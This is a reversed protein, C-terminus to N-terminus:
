LFVVTAACSRCGLDTDKLCAHTLWPCWHKTFQSYSKSPLPRQKAVPCSGALLRQWVHSRLSAPALHPTELRQGRLVAELEAKHGNEATHGCRREQWGPRGGGAMSPLWGSRATSRPQDLCARSDAAPVALTQAHLLRGASAGGRRATTAHMDRGGLM